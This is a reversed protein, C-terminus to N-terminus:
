DTQALSQPHKLNHSHFWLSAGISIQLILLVDLVVFFRRYVYNSLILLLGNVLICAIPALFVPDENWLIYFSSLIALIVLIGYWNYERTLNYYKTIISSPALPRAVYSIKQSVQALWAQKNALTVQDDQGLFFTGSKLSILEGVQRLLGAFNAQWPLFQISSLGIEDMIAATQFINPPLSREAKTQNISPFFSEYMPDLAPARDRGIIYARYLSMGLYSQTNESMSAGPTLLSRPDFNATFITRSLFHHSTQLLELQFYGYRWYNFGAFTIYVGGIALVPLSYYALLTIISQIRPWLTEPSKFFKYIKPLLIPILAVIFLIGNERVLFAFLSLLAYFILLISSFPKRSTVSTILTAMGLLVLSAFLSERLIWRSYHVQAPSLLCFFVFLVATMPHLWRRLTWACLITSISFVAAQFLVVRNLQFGFLRLATGLFLPYGPLRTDSFWKGSTSLHLYNIPDYPNLVPSNAVLVLLFGVAICWLTYVWWPYSANPRARKIAGGLNKSAKPLFYILLVPILLITFLLAWVTLATLVTNDLVSVGPRIEEVLFMKGNNEIDILTSGQSFSSTVNSLNFQTEEASFGIIGDNPLYGYLLINSSNLELKHFSAASVTSRFILSIHYAPRPPLETLWLSAIEGNNAMQNEAESYPVLPLCETQQLDWCIDIMTDAPAEM